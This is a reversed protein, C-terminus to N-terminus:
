LSGLSCYDAGPPNPRTVGSSSSSYSKGSNSIGSRQVWMARCSGASLSQTSPEHLMPEGKARAYARCFRAPRPSRSTRIRRLTSGIPDHRFLLAATAEFLKGHAAKPRQKEEIIEQQTMTQHTHRRVILSLLPPAGTLKSDCVRNM